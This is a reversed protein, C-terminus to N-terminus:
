NIQELVYNLFEAEQKAINSIAKDENNIQKKSDILKEEIVQKNSQNLFEARESLVQITDEKVEVVGGDLIIQEIIDSDKNYLKLVGRKLLSMLPTHKPMVGLDGELGPLVAMKVEKSILVDLPTVIEINTYEIM